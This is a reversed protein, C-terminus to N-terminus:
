LHQRPHPSFPVRRCQQHWHLSTCNQVPDLVDGASLGQEKKEDCKRCEIFYLLLFMELPVRILSAVLVVKCFAFKRM